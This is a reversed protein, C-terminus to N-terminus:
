VGKSVPHFRFWSEWRASIMHETDGTLRCARFMPLPIPKQGVWDCVIWMNGIRDIYATEVIEGSTFEIEALLYVDKPVNRNATSTPYTRM